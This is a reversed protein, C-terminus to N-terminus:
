VSVFRRREGNNWCKYCGQGMSSVGGPGPPVNKCTSDAYGQTCMAMTCDRATWGTMAGKPMEPHAQYLLSEVAPCYCVNVDMCIGGHSCGIIANLYV